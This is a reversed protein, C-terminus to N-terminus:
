LAELILKESVIPLNLVRKDAHYSIKSNVMWTSKSCTEAAKLYNITHIYISGQNSYDLLSHIHKCARLQFHVIITQFQSIASYWETSLM